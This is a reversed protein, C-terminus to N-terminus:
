SQVSITHKLKTFHKDVDSADPVRVTLKAITPLEDTEEISVIKLAMKDKDEVNRGGFTQNDCVKDNYLSVSTVVM